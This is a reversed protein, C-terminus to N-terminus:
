RRTAEALMSFVQFVLPKRDLNYVEAEVTAHRAKEWAEALRALRARPADTDTAAAAIWDGVTEAFITLEENRRLKDGLSHLSEGDVVPLRDLLDTTLTRVELTEGLLLELAHRVSGGSATAAEMIRDGPIEDNTEAVDRVARAVNEQTLPRLMLRRCRSRITPLVRGPALSVILLLSLPPPEELVKLLANAGSPNL